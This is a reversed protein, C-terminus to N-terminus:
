RRWPPRERKRKQKKRREKKGKWVTNKKLAKATSGNLGAVRDLNVEFSGSMKPTAEKAPQAHKQAVPKEKPLPPGVFCGTPISPALFLLEGIQQFLVGQEVSAQVHVSLVVPQSDSRKGIRKALDPSASLVVQQYGSPFIGKQAVFPYAKKRVCTYLLKPLRPSVNPRPLHERRKARIRNDSIEFPPDPISYQIEDLHFRRVHKWGKEENLAKLLQKIKVYGQKDLVLGFEDPRRELIYALYKALQRPTKTKVMHMRSRYPEIQYKEYGDSIDVKKNVVAKFIPKHPYRM